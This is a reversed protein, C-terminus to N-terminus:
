ETAPSKENPTYYEPFLLKVVEGETKFSYCTNIFFPTAEGQDLMQMFEPSSAITQYAMNVVVNMLGLLHTCGATGGIIESVAKKWGKNLSIGKLKEYNLPPKACPTFPPM